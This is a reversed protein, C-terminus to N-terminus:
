SHSIQKARLPHAGGLSAQALEIASSQQREGKLPLGQLRAGALTHGGGQEGIANAM